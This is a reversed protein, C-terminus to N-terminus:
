FVNDPINGVDAYFGHEEASLPDGDIFAADMDSQLRQFVTAAAHEGDHCFETFPEGLDAVHLDTDHGVLASAAVGARYLDPEASVIHGFKCGVGVIQRFFEAFYRPRNIHFDDANFRFRFYGYVQVLNFGATEPQIVGRYPFDHLIGELSFARAVGVGDAVIIEIDDELEVFFVAAGYLVYSVQADGRHVAGEDSQSIYRVYSKGGAGGADVPFSALPLNGNVCICRTNGCAVEERFNFVFENGVEVHVDAVTVFEDATGIYHAADEM